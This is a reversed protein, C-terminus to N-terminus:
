RPWIHELEKVGAMRILNIVRERMLVFYINVLVPASCMSHIIVARGEGFSPALLNLM